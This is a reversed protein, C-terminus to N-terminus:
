RSPLRAKKRSVPKMPWSRVISLTANGSTMNDSRVSIWVHHGGQSGRILPLVDGDEFPEFQWEGTGVEVDGESPMSSTPGCGLCAALSMLITLANLRASRTMWRSSLAFATGSRLRPFSDMFIERYCITANIIALSGANSRDLHASGGLSRTSRSAWGSVGELAVWQRTSQDTVCSRSLPAFTRRQM